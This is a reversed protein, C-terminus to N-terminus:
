GRTRRHRTLWRMTWRMPSVLRSAATAKISKESPLDSVTPPLQDDLQGLRDLQVRLRAPLEDERLSTRLNEGIERIIARSVLGDIDIRNRM